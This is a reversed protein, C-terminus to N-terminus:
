NLRYEHQPNCQKGPSSEYGKFRWEMRKICIGACAINCLVEVVHGDQCIDVILHSSSFLLLKKINNGPPAPGARQFCM